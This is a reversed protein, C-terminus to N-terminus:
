GYGYITMCVPFSIGKAIQAADKAMELDTWMNKFTNSQMLLSIEVRVEEGDKTTCPVQLHMITEANAAEANAADRFEVAAAAAGGGRSPSAKREVTAEM